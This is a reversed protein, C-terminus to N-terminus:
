KKFASPPPLVLSDGSKTGTIEDVRERLKRLASVEREIAAVGRKTGQAPKGVVVWHKYEGYARAYRTQILRTITRMAERVLWEDGQKPSLGQQLRFVTLADRQLEATRRGREEASLGPNRLEHYLQTMRQMRKAIEGQVSQKANALARQAAPRAREVERLTVTPDFSGANAEIQKTHESLRLLAPDSPTQPDPQLPVMPRLGNASGKGKGGFMASLEEGCKAALQNVPPLDTKPMARGDRVCRLSAAPVQLSRKAEAESISVSRNGTRSQVDPPSLDIFTLKDREDRAYLLLSNYGGGYHLGKLAQHLLERHRPNFKALSDSTPLQWGAGLARQCIDVDHILQPVWYPKGYHTEFTCQAVNAYNERAQEPSLPEGPKPPVIRYQQACAGLFYSFTLSAEDAMREQAPREVPYGGDKNLATVCPAIPASLEPSKTGRADIAIISGNPQFWAGEGASSVPASSSGAAPPIVVTPAAPPSTSCALAGSGIVCASSRLVLM